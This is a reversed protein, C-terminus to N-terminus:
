KNQQEFKELKPWQFSALKWHTDTDRQYAELWQSNQHTKKKNTKGEEEKPNKLLVKKGEPVAFNKQSMKYIEWGPELTLLKELSSLNGKNCFPILVLIPISIYKNRSSHM